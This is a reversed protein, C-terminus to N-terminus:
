CVIIQFSAHRSGKIFSNVFLQFNNKGTIAQIAHLAESQFDKRRALAIGANTVISTDMSKTTGDGGITCMDAPLYLALLSAHRLLTPLYMDPQPVARSM